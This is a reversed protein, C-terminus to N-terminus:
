PPPDVFSFGAKKLAEIFLPLGKATSPQVHMLINVPRANTARKALAKAALVSAPITRGNLGQKKNQTDGTDVDWYVVTLGHQNAAAQIKPDVRGTVGGFGYPARFRKPAVGTAAIIASQAQGIEGNVGAQTQQPLPITGGLGPHSWTHNQVKHGLPILAATQAPNAQVEEGIVYFDVKINQATLIATIGLLTSTPAPGDDFTLLVPTGGSGADDPSGQEALYALLQLNELIWRLRRFENVRDDLEQEDESVVSPSRLGGRFITTRLVGEIVDAIIKANSSGAVIAGADIADKLAGRALGLAAQNFVSYNKSGVPIQYQVSVYDYHIVDRGTNLCWLAFSQNDQYIDELTDGVITAIPPLNELPGNQAVWASSACWEALWVLDTVTIVQTVTPANDAFYNPNKVWRDIQDFFERFDSDVKAQAIPTGAGLPSYLVVDNVVQGIFSAQPLDLYADYTGDRNFDGTKLSGVKTRWTSVVGRDSPSLQSAAIQTFSGDGNNQLVVEDVLDKTESLVIPIALDDLPIFVIRAEHKVYVDTLGDSNLDGGYAKYNDDFHAGLSPACFAVLALASVLRSKMKEKGRRFFLDCTM